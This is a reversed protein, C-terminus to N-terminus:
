RGFDIVLHAHNIRSRGSAGAWPPLSAGRSAVGRPGKGALILTDITVVVVLDARRGVQATVRRAM